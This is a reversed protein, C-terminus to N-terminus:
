CGGEAAKKKKKFTMVKKPTRVIPTETTLQDPYEVGFYMSAAKRLAYLKLAENSSDAQPIPPNIITEFWQNIGGELVRLNKYGLRNCILWAQDAYFHDNSFFVVDVADQNLIAKSEEDLLKKLPIHIANPLTYQKFSAEARVDILVFSPDQNIIKHSLVDTSIYRETSIANALLSEPSIGENKQYKPLAVLGAALLVLVIALIRYRVAFSKLKAKYVM